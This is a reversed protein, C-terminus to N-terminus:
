DDCSGTASHFTICWFASVIIGLFVGVACLGLSLAAVAPHNSRTRLIYATTAIAAIMSPVGFSLASLM